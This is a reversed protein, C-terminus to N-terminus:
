SYGEAICILPNTFLFHVLELPFYGVMHRITSTIRGFCRCWRMKRLFDVACPSHLWLISIEIVTPVRCKLLTDLDDFCCVVGSNVMAPFICTCTLFLVQCCRFSNYVSCVLGEELMPQTRAPPLRSDLGLRCNLQGFSM